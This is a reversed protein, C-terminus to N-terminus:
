WRLKVWLPCHDSATTTTDVRREEVETRDPLGAGLIYDIRTTPADSPFTCQTTDSLLRFGDGLGDTVAVASEMNFDGALLVPKSWGAAAERIMPLSATQDEPTLSLHTVCVVYDVFEAMLLTRAEERGPLAMRRVSLPETRSLLAIGYAGGDYAIARAFTAHMGTRDALERAVDLGGSRGTLSDIEQLAVADPAARRIAEATRDLDCVGDIGIGNRVNYSMFTMRVEPSCAGLLLAFAACVIYRKM